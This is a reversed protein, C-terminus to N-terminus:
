QLVFPQKPDGTWKYLKVTSSQHKGGEGGDPHSIYYDGNGIPCFGTTGYDVQWGRIGTKADCEGDESLFLVEGRTPTDFGELDQMVAPKSGDIAFLSYNPNQFKHGRYVAAFWYGTYPDYALNQIGYATNGTRVFYKHDCTDPGSRHPNEQNLPREYAKLKEPDFNLLVQYENDTRLTDEFVGYAINIYNKSGKPTGFAPGFSIGDVGSCGHRHKVTKGQNQVSAYYDDVVEKLYVATMVSDKEADMDPRTIKDVDFIAIYFADTNHTQENSDLKKLIERGIADNKYEISGYVRGDEPNMTLCGLHGTLGKVSGILNGQLDMKLLETTFSFYIYGQKLDVAIGQVHFPGRVGSFITPPLSVVDPTDSCKCCKSAQTSNQASVSSTAILLSLGLLPLMQNIKM